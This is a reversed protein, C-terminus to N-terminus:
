RPPARGSRTLARVRACPAGSPARGTFAALGSAWGAAGARRLRMGPTVVCIKMPRNMPCRSRSSRARREADADLREGVGEQPHDLHDDGRQQERRQHDADGARAVQLRHPADAELRDDVELHRRRDREHEPRASTLTKLGPAPSATGIPASVPSSAGSACFWCCRRPCRGAGTGSTPRRRSPAPRCGASPRRRSTRRCRARPWRRAPCAPRRRARSGRRLHHELEGAVHHLKAGTPTNAAIAAVTPPLPRPM